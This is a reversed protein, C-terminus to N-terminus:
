PRNLGASTFSIRMTESNRSPLPRVRSQNRPGCRGPTRPAWPGRGCGSRRSCRASPRPGGRPGSPRLPPPRPSRGRASVDRCRRPSAAGPRLVRSAPHPRPTTRREPSCPPARAAARCGSTRRATRARRRAASRATGTARTAREPSPCEDRVAAPRPAGGPGPPRSWRVVAWRRGGSCEGPARSPRVRCPRRESRSLPVARRLRGSREALIRPRRAPRRRPPRREPTSLRRAPRRRRRPGESRFGHASGPRSWRVGSTWPECRRSLVARRRM